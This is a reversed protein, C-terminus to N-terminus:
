ALPGLLQGLLAARDFGIDPLKPLPTGRKPAVVGDALGGLLEACLLTARDGSPGPGGVVPLPYRRVMAAVIHWVFVTLL